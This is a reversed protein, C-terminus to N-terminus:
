AALKVEELSGMTKGIEADVPFPLQHDWEFTERVDLTGMIGAAVTLHSEWQDERVYGDASDHTAGIVCFEDDHGDFEEELKSIGYINLDSLTAQVPSNIAQREAKSRIQSFSSHIEPLHRVRGLPSRVFGFERAHEVQADHWVLLGPYSAFFGDRFAEAEALTMKVGYVKWAYEVFGPAKMRYLLGFNGAKGGQRLAKFLAQQKPNGKKFGMFEELEFGNAEAATKSHLDVGALYADIMAQENACCAAVRLEGQSFDLQWRLMGDPAIFCDRIKKAWENHKPITQRAPNKAALRGTNTGSDDDDDGFMSGAYLMYTPHFRRDPRLHSLFGKDFGRGDKSRIGVYTGLMKKAKGIDELADVLSGAKPHDRFQSLHEMATSPEKTKETLNDPNPKIGFGPAEGFFTDRIIVDRTFSLNEFYKQRIESPVYRWAQRTRDKLYDNLETELALYKPVDILDGRMEIKEFARAAPHVLKQYFRALEPDAALEVVMELGSRLCADTDGGAYGLLDDKPVDEMRNKDFKKEPGKANMESDYGALDPAYIQSHTTLSNSRNENLLSGGILTDFTFNTCRIGWRLWLWQLDFKFNAGWLKVKPTNLLWELGDRVKDPLGYRITGAHADDWFDRHDVVWSVGPQSSFQSTVIDKGPLYPWLGMTELDGAVAVPKNGNSEFEIAIRICLEDYDKVWRYDGLVPKLSGTDHLRVALNADWEIKQRAAPDSQLIGPSFTLLATAGSEGEIRKGRLSTLTRGKPVLGADRLRDAVKAGMGLIVDGKELKPLPRTLDVYTYEREARYFIPGVTSAVHHQGADGWVYIM